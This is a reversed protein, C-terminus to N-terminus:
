VRRWLPSTITVVSITSLVPLTEAIGYVTLPSLITDVAGVDSTSAVAATIKASVPNGALAATIASDFLVSARGSLQIWTYNGRTVANLFVGAILTPVAATPKADATVQYLSDAATLDWFALTGRAPIAASGSATLVYQYLGGFLTGTASTFRIDTSSLAVRSGPLGGYQAAGTGSAVSQGPLVDNAANFTSVERVIQSVVNSPM